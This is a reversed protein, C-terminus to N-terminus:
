RTRRCVAVADRSITLSTRPLPQHEADFEALRLRERQLGAPLEYVAGVLPQEALHDGDRQHAVVSDEGLDGSVGHIDVFQGRRQDDAVFLDVVEHGRVFGDEGVKMVEGSWEPVEACGQELIAHTPLPGGRTVFSAFPETTTMVPAAPPMPRAVASAKARRPELRIRPSMLSSASSRVAAAARVTCPTRAMAALHSTRSSESTCPSTAKARLSNPRTSTITLLAPM